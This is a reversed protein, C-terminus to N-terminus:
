KITCITKINANKLMEPTYTGWDQLDEEEAIKGSNTLTPNRQAKEILSSTM